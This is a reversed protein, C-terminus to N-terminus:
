DFLVVTLLSPRGGNGRECFGLDELIRLVTITFCDYIQLVDIDAHDVAAEAM